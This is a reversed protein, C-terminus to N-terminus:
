KVKRIKWTLPTYASYHVVNTGMRSMRGDQELRFMDGCIVVFRTGNPAIRVRAVENHWGYKFSVYHWGFLFHWLKWM